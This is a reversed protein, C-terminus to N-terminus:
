GACRRAYPRGDNGVGNLGLTLSITSEQTGASQLERKWHLGVEICENRYVVGAGAQSSQGATFDYRYNVSTTWHRGLGLEAGLWVESAPTARGEAPDALMWLHGAGLGLNGIRWGARTEAKTVRLSDDILTRSALHLEGLSLHGALLWDSANGDLGSAASFLGTDEAHFVRGLTLGLRAGGATERAYNVGVAASLGREVADKGPFRGLSILNGEDFEPMLGDENPVSTNNTGTWAIQAVPELFDRAGDRGARALPWRLEASVAGTTRWLQGSPTSGPRFQFGEALARAALTGRLGGALTSTRSWDLAVTAHYEDSGYGEGPAHLDFGLKGQGGLAFPVFRREYIGRSQFLTRTSTSGALPVDSSATLRIYEMRRTRSLTAENHLRDSGSYDYESAYTSDSAIEAGLNLTFDRPLAISASADLYYRLSGPMVDDSSVAGQFTLRAARFARRYRFELTRTHEALYPTLTLDAHDGLTIFYPLKVGSGLKDTGRFEPRLFGTARRTSSDPMVLRPTWLVPVGIIEFRANRFYLRGEVSDHIVKEARVQWIPPGGNCIRCASGVAKRMVTYRGEVLEAEAAAIQMQEQILERAGYLIGNRFDADLEAISGLLLRQDGESYYIPGDVVITDAAPDYVIRRATLRADGREVLINGEAVLRGDELLWLRDSALVTPPANQARAPVAAALIVLALALLWARRGARRAGKAGKGHTRGSV